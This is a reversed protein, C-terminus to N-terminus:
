AAGGSAIFAATADPSSVVAWMRDPDNFNTVFADAIAQNQAAAVLLGIAHPPPPQLFANTWAAAAATSEWLRQEARTCFAEDFRGGARAHASLLEGLLWAARSAANAGQGVIPDHTVHTDGLAMAFRGGPLPAVGRRVTPVIAGSLTDLPGM